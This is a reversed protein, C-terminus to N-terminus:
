VATSMWIEPMPELIHLQKESSITLINSLFVEDAHRSVRMDCEVRPFDPQAAAQVNRAVSSRYSRVMEIDITATTM